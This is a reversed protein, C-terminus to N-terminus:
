QHSQRFQWWRTDDSTVLLCGSISIVLAEDFFKSGTVKIDAIIVRPVKSSYINLLEILLHASYRILGPQSCCRNKFCTHHWDPHSSNYRDARVRHQCFILGLLIVFQTCIRIVSNKIARCILPNRFNNTLVKLLWFKLWTRDSGTGGCRPMQKGFREGTGPLWCHGWLPKRESTLGAPLLSICNLM